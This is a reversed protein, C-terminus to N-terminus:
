RKTNASRRADEPVSAVSILSKAESPTGLGDTPVGARMRIHQMVTFLIQSRISLVHNIMCGRVLEMTLADSPLQSHMAQMLLPFALKTNAWNAILEKQATGNQLLAPHLLVQLLHSPIPALPPWACDRVITDTATSVIEITRLNELWRKTAEAEPTLPLAAPIALPAKIAARGEERQRKMGPNSSGEVSIDPHDRAVDVAKDQLATAIGSAIGLKNADKIWTGAEVPRYIQRLTSYGSDVLKKAQQNHIDTLLAADTVEKILEGTIPPWVGPAVPNWMGLATATLLQKPAGANAAAAIDASAKPAVPAGANAAAAVEAKAAAGDAAKKALSMQTKIKAAVLGTLNLDRIADALVDRPVNLLQEPSMDLAGALYVFTPIGSTVKTTTTTTTTTHDDTAAPAVGEGAPTGSM